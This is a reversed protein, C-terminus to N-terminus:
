GIEEADEIIVEKEKEENVKSIIKLRERFKGALKEHKDILEVLEEPQYTFDPIIEDAFEFLTNLVCFKITPYKRNSDIYGKEFLYERFKHIILSEETSLRTVWQEGYKKSSM